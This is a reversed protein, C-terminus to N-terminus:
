SLAPLPEPRLAPESVNTTTSYDHVLDSWMYRYLPLTTELSERASWWGQEEGLSVPHFLAGRARLMDSDHGWYMQAARWYKLETDHTRGPYQKGQWVKKYECLVVQTTFFDVDQQLREAVDGRLATALAVVNEIHGTSTLWTASAPFLLALGERPSEGGRARIDTQHFKGEAYRALAEVYKLQVYRGLGYITGTSKWASEFAEASDDGWWDPPQETVQATWDYIGRLCRYFKNPTRVARRERRMGIGGWNESLWDQLLPGETHMRELPWHKWLIEATPVNYGSAYLGCRWVREAWSEDRIMEGLTALHPDPGGVAKEWRIFESFFHLHEQTSFPPTAQVVSKSM